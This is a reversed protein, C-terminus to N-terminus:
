RVHGSAISLVGSSLGVVSVPTLRETVHYINEGYTYGDGLQLFCLRQRCSVTRITHCVGFSEAFCCYSMVQGYFISGWCKVGGGSMVACTHSQMVHTLVEAREM